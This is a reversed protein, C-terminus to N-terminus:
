GGILNNHLKLAEKMDDIFYNMEDALLKYAEKYENGRLEKLVSKKHIFYAPHFTPLLPIGNYERWIGREETIKFGNGLLTKAVPSGLTIIVLPKIIELQRDLRPKCSMCEESTPTRNNPPRCLVMNTIYIDNRKIGVMSFVKDLCKGAEGVFVKGLENETRGPAEGIIMLSADPNGDGFVVRIDDNRLQCKYCRREILNRLENLQEENM